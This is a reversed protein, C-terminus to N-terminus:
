HVWRKPYGDLHSGERPKWTVVEDIRHALEVDRSTVARVRHTQLKVTVQAYGISLDPHHWAAEALYGITSALLMTHPWGPTTFSRRLWGERLEWGPLGSLAQQLEEETLVHDDPM